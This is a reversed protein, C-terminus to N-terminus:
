IKNHKLSQFDNLINTIVYYFYVILRLCFHRKRDKQIFTFIKKTKIYIPGEIFYIRKM